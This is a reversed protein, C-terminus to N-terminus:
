VFRILIVRKKGIGLKILGNTTMSENVLIRGDKVQQDNIYLGGNAILKKAEGNSSAAGSMVTVGIIDVLGFVTSKNLELAFAGDHKGDLIDHVSRLEAPGRCLSTISDALFIKAKNLEEFKLRAFEQVQARDSDTFLQILKIVDDDHVNRWYQWFDHSSLKEKNLWVAGSMTKGMKKGDSTTLLPSTLGYVPKDEVRRVLEVGNVINGWQDSGGLQLVCDFRRNLELFDYSQLLPYNFELFSLNTANDLRQKFTEMAAMKNVSFHVGFNRLFDIYKLDKLWDDNNVMIARNEGEFSIFNAFSKRIGAMNAALQEDTLLPRMENKWTPDGIKTTGGGLLIIPTHGHKQFIRLLFIQTLHGAHLSDATVDFGIYVPVKKSALLTDLSEMDTCQYIFGRFSLEDLIPSKYKM